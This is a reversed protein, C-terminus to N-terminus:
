HRWGVIFVRLKASVHRHPAYCAVHLPMPVMQWDAFLCWPARCGCAAEGYDLLWLVGLGALGAAPYANGDDVACAYRGWARCRSEHGRRM